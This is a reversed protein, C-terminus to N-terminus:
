AKHRKNKHLLAIRAIANTASIFLVLLLAAAWAQRHWDEYPSTAYKYIEVPLTNMQQDMRFNWYENGLVTFLLPATEGGIRALSLFVATTIGRSAAPLVVKWITQAQSAGLALSAERVSLPVTRLIEESGRVIVPVMMVFLAFSGAIASFRGMPLVVISYAFIGLIISPTSNILDCAFRIAMSFRGHKAFEHIYVAALIGVPVAFLASTIIIMLSGTIANAVGGGVEGVPRPLRTFFEWHFALRFPHWNFSLISDLGRSVLYALIGFLPALLALALLSIVGLAVANWTKRLQLHGPGGYQLRDQQQVEYGGCCTDLLL